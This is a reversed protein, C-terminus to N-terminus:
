IEMNIGNIKLWEKSKNYTPIITGVLNWFDKSHNKFPMHCMEHVVIYDIVTEKAMSCRYNFLLDNYYTCSAWRRKQEKVKINRPHTDFYKQFYNVKATVKEMTKQRYLKEISNRILKPEASKVTVILKNNEIYAEKLMNSIEVKLEIESGLYLFKEGSTYKHAPKIDMNKFLTLKKLIWPAKNKVASIITDSSIGFPAKVTIKGAPEISIQMTKRKSYILEFEINTGAYIFNLKM